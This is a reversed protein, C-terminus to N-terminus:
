QANQEHWAKDKETYDVCDGDTCNRPGHLVLSKPPVYGPSTIDGAIPDLRLEYCFERLHSTDTAKTKGYFQFVDWYEAWGYVYVHGGKQISQIAAIPIPQADFLASERPGLDSHQLKGTDPFGCGEPMATQSLSTSVMERTNYTGTNGDNVMTIEFTWFTVKGNELTTLIQIQQPIDVYAWQAKRSDRSAEGVAYLQDGVGKWMRRTYCTYTTTVVALVISALAIWGNSTPKHDWVWVLFIWMARFAQYVHETPPHAKVDANLKKQGREFPHPVLPVEPDGSNNDPGQAEQSVPNEEPM